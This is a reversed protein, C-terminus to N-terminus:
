WETVDSCQFQLFNVNNLRRVSDSMVNVHRYRNSYLTTAHGLYEVLIKTFLFVFVDSFPCFTFLLPSVSSIARKPQPVTFSIIM